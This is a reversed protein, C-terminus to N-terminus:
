GSRRHATFTREAFKRFWPSLAFDNAVAIADIVHVKDHSVGVYIPVDAKEAVGCVWDADGSAHTQPTSKFNFLSDVILM